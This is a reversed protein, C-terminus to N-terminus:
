RPMPYSGFESRTRLTSRACHAPEAPAVSDSRQPAPSLYQPKGLLGFHPGSGTCDSHLGHSMPVMGGERIEDHAIRFVLFCGLIKEPPNARLLGVVLVGRAGSPPPFSRRSAM